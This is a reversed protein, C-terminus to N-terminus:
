DRSKNGHGNPIKNGTEYGDTSEKTPPLADLFEKKKLVTNRVIAAIYSLNKPPEPIQMFNRFATEVSKPKDMYPRIKELLISQDTANNLGIKDLCLSFLRRCDKDLSLLNFDDPKSHCVPCPRGCKTCYGM